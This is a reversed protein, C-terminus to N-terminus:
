LEDDGLILKRRPRVPKWESSRGAERPSEAPPAVEERPKSELIEFSLPPGGDGAARPLKEASEQLLKVLDFFAENFFSAVGQAIKRDDRALGALHDLEDKIRSALHKVREVATAERSELVVDVRFGVASAYRALDGLRIDADASAELKSIRSQTCGLNSAIDGQSLGRVARLVMLDKVLGRDRMRGEFAAAFDEDDTTERVMEAVSAFITKKKM